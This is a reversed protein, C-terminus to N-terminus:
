VEMPQTPHSYDIIGNLCKDLCVQASGVKTVDVKKLSCNSCTGEFIRTDRKRQIPRKNAKIKAM